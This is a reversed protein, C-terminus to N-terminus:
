IQELIDGIFYLSGLVILRKPENNNKQKSFYNLAENINKVIYLVKIGENELEKTLEKINKFKHEENDPIDILIISKITTKINKIFAQTDKRELMTFIGVTEKEDIKNKDEVWESVVRAGDENHAGDVWLEYNDPLLKGLSSTTINQLRGLWFCNQIGKKFAEDSVVIKNQALIGAIATGANIIQHKGELSPKPTYLMKFIGEFVCNNEKETFKWNKGYEYIPCGLKEIEEKFFHSVEETQKSVVVPTGPKVIGLKEGAIELLTNGLIHRHDFSISTLINVLPDEFVNTADLRGGLGVEIINAKADNRSFALLAIVTIAEFYSIELNNEEVVKKVEEALEEYYEDTIPKGLLEIRENFNIIHPSTYRNVKFGDAELIYKLFSTVSGKGNTGAIHFVNQIKDQPNGLKELLEKIRELGLVSNRNKPDPWSPLKM